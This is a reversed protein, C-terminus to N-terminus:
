NRDYIVLGKKVITRMLTPLKSMEDFRHENDALIDMPPYDTYLMERSIKIRADLPKLPYDDPLVVYFDYDSDKHPTGYAYSGFLYIREADVCELIKDRIECIQAYVEPPITNPM